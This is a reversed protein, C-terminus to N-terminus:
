SCYENVDLYAFDIFVNLALPLSLGALSWSSSFKCELGCIDPHAPIKDQTVGVNCYVRVSGGLQLFQRCGIDQLALSRIGKVGWLVSLTVDERQLAM